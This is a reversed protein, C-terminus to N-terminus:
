AFRGSHPLCRLPGILNTEFHTRASAVSEEALFGGMQAIGANDFL